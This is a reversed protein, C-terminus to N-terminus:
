YRCTETTVIARTEAVEQYQAVLLYFLAAVMLFYISCLIREKKIFHWLCLGLGGSMMLQFMGALHLQLGPAQEYADNALFVALAAPISAGIMLAALPVWPLLRKETEDVKVPNHRASTSEEVVIRYGKESEGRPGCCGNDFSITVKKM